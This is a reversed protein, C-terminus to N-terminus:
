QNQAILERVAPVLQTPIEMTTHTANEFAAEDELIAEDDTQNEYHKLVQKVRNEDWDKPLKDQKMKVKEGNVDETLLPVNAEPDTYYRINM